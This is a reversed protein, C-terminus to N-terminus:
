KKISGEWRGGVAGEGREEGNGGWVKRREGRKVRGGEEATRGGQRGGVNKWGERRGERRGEAAERGEERILGM